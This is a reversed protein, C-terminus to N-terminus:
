RGAKEFFAPHNINLRKLYLDNFSYLPLTNRKKERKEEKEKNKLPNYPFRRKRKKEKRKEKRKGTCCRQM